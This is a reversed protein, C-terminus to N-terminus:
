SRACTTAPVKRSPTATAAFSPGSASVKPPRTTSSTPRRRRITLSRVVFWDAFRSSRGRARLDRFAWFTVGVHDFVGDLVLKIQRRHCEQVLRLFLRDATTWKWSSPDAPNETAWVLRDGDPDPGLNNDVHHLAAADRRSASPAEFIPNLIIATAGLSQIYDLRELVGQLDGGFRRMPAVEYFSRGAAQEWPQLKYWDATWPSVRWDRPLDHPAAGRLDSGKPDNHPDGNRFRDPQIVYWVADEAWAPPGTRLPGQALVEHRYALLALCLGASRRFTGM